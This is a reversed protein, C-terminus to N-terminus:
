FIEKLEANPMVNKTPNSPLQFPISHFSIFHFSIDPIDSFGSYTWSTPLGLKPFNSIDMNPQGSDGLGRGFKWNGFGSNKAM